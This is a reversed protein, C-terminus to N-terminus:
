KMAYVVLVPNLNTRNLALKKLQRLLHKNETYDKLDESGKLLAEIQEKQLISYFRENFLSVPVDIIINGVRFARFLSDTSNISLFLLRTTGKQFQFFYLEQSELFNELSHVISNDFLNRMHDTNRVGSEGYDMIADMSTQVDFEFDYKLRRSEYDLEWIETSYHPKYNMKNPEGDIRFHNIRSIAWSQNANWFHKFYKKSVTNNKTLYICFSESDEWEGNPILQNNFIRTEAGIPFSHVPYFEFDIKQKFEGEELSYILLGRKELDLIEITNNFENIEVSNLDSYQGPGRGFEDVSYILVGELDYNFLKYQSKDVVIFGNKHHLIKDIRGVFSSSDLFIFNVKEPNIDVFDKFDRTDIFKKFEENQGKMNDCGHVISLFTLICVDSLYKRM